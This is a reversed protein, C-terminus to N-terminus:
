RAKIGLRAAISTLVESVTTLVMYPAVIWEPLVGIRVHPTHPYLEDENWTRITLKSLGPELKYYDNFSITEGDSSFSDLPDFPYVQRGAQLIQVHCLGSCMSPFMVEVHHIVGAHLKIETELADAKATNADTTIAKVTFSM